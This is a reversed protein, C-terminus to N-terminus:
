LSALMEAAQVSDGFTVRVAHAREAVRALGEFRQQATSGSPMASAVLAALAAGTNVPEMSLSAGPRYQVIGLTKVRQPMAWGSVPGPDFYSEGPDSLAALEPSQTIGLDVLRHPHVGFLRKFPHVVGDPGILVIDDGLVPMKTACWSTALSSKGAGSGGLALVAGDSGHAGSAHLHLFEPLATLLTLTLAYEIANIADHISTFLTRGGLADTVAWGDSEKSLVCSTEAPREDGLYDAYAPFLNRVSTATVEDPTRVCM